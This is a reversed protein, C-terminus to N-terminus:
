YGIVDDVGYIDCINYDFVDDFDKLVDANEDNNVDDVDDIDDVVGVNANCRILMMKTVYSCM